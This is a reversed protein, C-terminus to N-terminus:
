RHSPHNVRARAERLDRPDREEGIAAPPLDSDLYEVLHANLLAALGEGGRRMVYNHNWRFLPQALPALKNMWPRTTHVDWAYRVVTIAGETDFRWVGTGQAEGSAVSRVERMPEVHTVRTEVTLSYPLAGHWTLERVAGVGDADGPDLTRVERVCPWWRAWHDVDRITDWVENLPATLRWLTLFHYENM